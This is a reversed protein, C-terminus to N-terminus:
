LCIISWARSYLSRLLQQKEVALPLVLYYVIKSKYVSLWFYCIILPFTSLSHTYEVWACAIIWPECEQGFNCATTQGTAEPLKQNASHTLLLSVLNLSRSNAHFYLRETDTTADSETLGQTRAGEWHATPHGTKLKDTKIRAVWPSDQHSSVLM